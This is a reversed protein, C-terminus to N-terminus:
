DNLYHKQVKLGNYHVFDAKTADFYLEAEKRLFCCYNNPQAAGWVDRPTKEVQIPHNLWQSQVIVKQQLSKLCEFDKPKGRSKNLNFKDQQM